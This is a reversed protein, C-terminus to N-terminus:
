QAAKSKIKKTLEPFFGPSKPDAGEFSLILNNKMIENITLPFFIKEFTDFSEKGFARFSNNNVSAALLLHVAIGKEALRVRFSRIEQEAKRIFRQEQFFPNLVLIRAESLGEPPDQMDMGPRYITFGVQSQIESETIEILKVDEPLMDKLIKVDSFPTCYVTERIDSNDRTLRLSKSVFTGKYDLKLSLHDKKRHDSFLRFFVIPEIM